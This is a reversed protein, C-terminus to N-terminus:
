CPRLTIFGSSSPRLGLPGCPTPPLALSPYCNQMDLYSSYMRNYEKGMLKITSLTLLFTGVPLPNSTQM